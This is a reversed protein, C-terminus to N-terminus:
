LLGRIVDTMMTTLRVVYETCPFYVKGTCSWMPKFTQLLHPPLIEVM